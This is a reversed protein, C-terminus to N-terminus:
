YLIRKKKNKIKREQACVQYRYLDGERPQCKGLGSTKRLAQRDKAPKSKPLPFERGPAGSAVAASILWHPRALAVMCHMNLREVVGM